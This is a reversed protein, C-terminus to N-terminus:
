GLEGRGVWTFRVLKNVKCFANIQQLKTLMDQINRSVNTNRQLHCCHVPELTLLVIVDDERQDAGFGHSVQPLSKFSRCCSLKVRGGSYVRRLDEKWLFLVQSVCGKSECGGSVLRPCQLRELCGSERQWTERSHAASVAWTSAALMFLTQLLRRRTESLSDHGQSKYLAGDVDFAQRLVTMLLRSKVLNYHYRWRRKGGKGMVIQESTHGRRLQPRMIKGSGRQRTWTRM